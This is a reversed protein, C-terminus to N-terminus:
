WTALDRDGDGVAPVDVAPVDMAPVDMAPVDGRLLLGGRNTRNGLSAVPLDLNGISPLKSKSARRFMSDTRMFLLLNPPLIARRLQPARQLPITQQLRLNSRM